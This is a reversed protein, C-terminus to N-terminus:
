PSRRGAFAARVALDPPYAPSTQVFFRLTIAHPLDAIPLPTKARRATTQRKV